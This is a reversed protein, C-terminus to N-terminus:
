FSAARKPRVAEKLTKGKKRLLKLFDEAESGKLTEDTGNIFRINVSGNQGIQASLIQDFNIFFGDELELIEM